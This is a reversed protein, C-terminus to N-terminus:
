FISIYNMYWLGEFHITWHSDTYECLQVVLWEGDGEELGRPVVLTSKVRHIQRNQVNLTFPIMCCTVKKTVPKKWEACHKLNMNYCLAAKWKKHSFLRNYPHLLNYKDIQLSIPMRATEMKQSNHVITAHINMHWNKHSCINKIRKLIYSVTFNYCWM